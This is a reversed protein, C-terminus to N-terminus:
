YEKLSKYNLFLNAQAMQIYASNLEIGVFSRGEERCVQGVTGLGFFPDLVIGKPPCCSLIPTRVLTKPFAAFHNQPHKEPSIEWFDDLFVDRPNRSVVLRKKKVDFNGGHNHYERILQKQADPNFPIGLLSNKSYKDGLNVWLSGTPKLVRKVEQFVHLLQDLYEQVSAEQGIQDLHHYDRQDYYPPSTICVDVQDGDWISLIKRCDGEYIMDTILKMLFGRKYFFLGTIQYHLQPPLFRINM